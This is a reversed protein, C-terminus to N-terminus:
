GYTSRIFMWTLRIASASRASHDAHTARQPTIVGVRVVALGALMELAVGLERNDKYGFDIM